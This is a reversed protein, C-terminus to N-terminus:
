KTDPEWCRVNQAERFGGDTPKLRWVEVRKLTLAEGVTFAAVDRRGQHDAYSAVLAQRDNVFVEVLYKDVYIRLDVDEGEPLDAVAFPAEATGVRLAGTEPRFLIPLGGGKGDGFLTFGFLKRLAQGRAITVRIEAADGPLTAIKVGAPAAAPLVESTLTKVVVDSVTEPAQRLTELERLPKIRLSGDPALSLERPLSQITRNDMNGDNKGLTALWAWMVRRGDPTLVSEPAFFDVRWPPRGYISQEERRFNMRGHRQPVFQEAKDDWDGIYYRCGLQHSICLLMWKGAGLPTSPNGIPFFNACSIDEGVAVDPLDHKMFDGVLTWTKLDKSKMLPPRGGGSIAYYTDGILFCDPDWHHIKAETGDANRVEVPYPKEWASLQRDKALAIQNRGSGQGHYIAAPRGEKTIFGTGSFMGHGTFSPQLKTPQWTWHLMDPSTVHVFSFSGKGQWPHALIYHLHYTGDLYFAANPDGPLSGGGPHMLHYNLAQGPLPVPGKAAAPPRPAAAAPLTWGPYPKYAEALPSVRINRFTVAGNETFFGLHKGAPNWFRTTLARFGGIEADILDHRVIVDVTFPKDLGKVSHLVPGGGTTGSSSRRRGFSVREERPQLRLECADGAGAEDSKLDIGFATAGAEPVVEMQLRYDSPLGPLVFGDRKGAAEVRVTEQLPLPKGTAPILEKVFRTGLTGDATQVMERLVLNGGWGDDDLFGAYLRRDKGFPATKPVGLNDVQLPTHEEWPGLWSRGKWVGSGCLYYFWDGFKFINPCIALHRDSAIFTGPQETWTELDPSTLRVQTRLSGVAKFHGGDLVLEGNEIRAGGYLMGDPFSGARDKLSGGAFDYWAVPKPGGEADPKLAALQAASLATDYLRADLVRGRFLRDGPSASTHRLGILLSSGSPFEVPTKIDYTAYPAGNRYLTGKAGEYALAVQVVADPAASEEPWAEQAGPTRAFTESGPMWRRATREGFVLADFQQGDPREVTLVSGGRQDLTSLRVWAVLTKDRLPQTKARQKPGAKVLNFLGTDDKFIELDGGQMFPHPATKTFTVGDKSVARQIGNSPGAYHPTPYFWNYQGNHFAVAGTGNWAEWQETIPITVPHHTWSKLDKTSAQWIELGGHGGDWKSHMNRRLILYFLRFTGSQEDWYPICDGAKRNHGRPRFYQLSPSEDGLIALERLRVQEAGGSVAAIEAPSLARDWLAVHDVLGRFGSKLGGHEQGAGILFPVARPRTEGIPYEEDVLVGDIWLELKPGTMAVVIDHWETPGILGVPFNVRMVANMVDQELPNPWAEKQQLQRIRNVRPADPEKAGWVAEILSRGPVARPGCSASLWAEITQLPHGVYNRDEMPRSAVDVARLAVSVSKDDGYSGLIPYRWTGQPDRMRIAVTWQKPSMNLASDKALALHGGEFRAARGDGGRALSAEREAGDLPVGVTVAGKAELTHGGRNDRMDAMSWYAAAGDFPSASRAIGAMLGVAALTVCICRGRTEKM